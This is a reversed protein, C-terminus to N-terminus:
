LNSPSLRHVYSNPIIFSFKSGKGLTSDIVLESDYHNLTHKVISLGLGSGGTDRSRSSDVRYFRETLHHIHQAAIGDGNDIVDFYAGEVC